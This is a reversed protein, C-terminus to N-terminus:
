TLKHIKIYQQLELGEAKEIINYLYMKTSIFEIPAIINQHPKIKVMLDYEAKCSALKDEDRNHMTKCAYLVGTEKNKCLYVTASAGSGISELEIYKEKFTDIDPETALSAINQRRLFDDGGCTSFDNFETRKEEEPDVSYNRVGSLSGKMRRRMEKMGSKPPRVEVKKLSEYPVPAKM